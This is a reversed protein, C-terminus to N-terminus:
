KSSAHSILWNRDIGQNQPGTQLAFNDRWKHIESHGDAFSMSSCVNHYVAPLDGSAVAPNMGVWLFGDNITTGQEDTYTFCDVTSLSASGFVSYKVFVKYGPVIEGTNQQEAATTGVYCNCSISRVRAAGNTTSTDGPCHYVGPNKTYPGLSGSLNYSTGGVTITTSTTGFLDTNVAEASNMMSGAVWQPSSYGGAHGDNPPLYDTNDTGYMISALQMQRMNSLCQIGQAKKKASSLAPLLMAALIAIIAIVVLLEILTFASPCRGLQRSSFSCKLKM